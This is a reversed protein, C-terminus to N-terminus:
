VDRRYKNSERSFSFPTLPPPTPPPRDAPQFRRSEVAATVWPELVLAAARVIEIKSDREQDGRTM